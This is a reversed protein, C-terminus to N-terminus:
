DILVGGDPGDLEKIGILDTVALEKFVFTVKGSKELCRRAAERHEEGLAFVVTTPTVVVHSRLEKGRLKRGEADKAM